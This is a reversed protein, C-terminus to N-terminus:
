ESEYTLQPLKLDNINGSSFYRGLSRVVHKTANLVSMQENDIQVEEYLIGALLHKHKPKLKEEKEQPWQQIIYADVCARFPEILDDALNFANLQSHHHLGWMPLFGYIALARAIASRLIAYGYNMASNYFRDDARVFKDEYLSPFYHQAALAELNESDGSKVNESLRDIFASTKNKHNIELAKAQNKLKYQIIKQWARKKMPKTASIQRQITKLQRSHSMYPLLIGNPMHSDDIFLVVIKHNVCLSMLKSTLTVQLSDIIIVALDEIPVKATNGDQIILLQNLQCKLHTNKSIVISRWTM